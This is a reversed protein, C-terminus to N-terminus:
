LKGDVTNAIQILSEIRHMLSDLFTSQPYKSYLTMIKSYYQRLLNNLTSKRTSDAIIENLTNVLQENLPLLEPIDNVDQLFTRSLDILMSLLADM